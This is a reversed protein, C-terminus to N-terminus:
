FATRLRVVQQCGLYGSGDFHFAATIQLATKKSIRPGWILEVRDYLGRFSNEGPYLDSAYIGGEPAPYDYYHYLDAGAYLSNQLCLNWKKARMIVEGGIPILPDNDIERSRQYGALLGAQVSLEQFVGSFGAFDGKVWPNFLHNDIVNHAVASTAYHYFSASWGASLYNFFKYKGASFIQFRERTAAGYKGMWDCGMEAYLRRTSYKLLVGEMNFDYFNQADSWIARSYSGEVLRRPFVGAAAEFRRKSRIKHKVHYYISFEKFSDWIKEGSGMDRMVGVGAMIRHETRKNQKYSLGVEPMLLVSHYTESEMYKEGAVDFERNDFYFDLYEGHVFKQAGCEFAAIALFLGTLLIRKM